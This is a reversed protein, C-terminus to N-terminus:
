IVKALLAVAAVEARLITKGLSIGIAGSKDLADFEKDSFGGEPGVLVAKATKIHCSVHSIHCSNYAAREDAFVLGNKDLDAFKIPPLLKPVSNRNSQEAAEILIKEIRKWNVHHAVVRDTIVPQLKAVGMQTVMNIMDDTKKIPAFCFTIDNSPDLHDTVCGIVLSKGDDSLAANFELGNNFVLCNNTRMVRQLYHTVEKGVAIALGPEIKENIFIRPINKM